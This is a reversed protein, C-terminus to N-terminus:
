PRFSAVADCLAQINEKPMGPSVGGGVSLILGEGGSKRLAELASEKVQGPAGRVGVDLPPVNGMLCMRGGTKAKVEAVDLKHSWNLVDFGCGPLESLFPRINADNHYAKVWGAPFADCIQKLYPHAFEKYARLSLFGVIDDLVLIGEVTDGIAEAQAKLWDIVTQTTIRLLHHAEGPHDVIDVMFESVGRLFAALCVPGRAAVVPMIFGADLIRPKQMKYLHLVFPMLGDTNPNCPVMSAADEIHALAPSQGPPQDQWFHVRSGYASPETAMGYEVWWSPFFIVDPFEKHIRINAQLWIEPNLYYDLHSVGIYGPIWPSDVILALPISAGPIRKAAKKFSQWQEPRM